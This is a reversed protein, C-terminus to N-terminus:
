GARRGDVIVVKSSNAPDANALAVFVSFEQTTNSMGISVFGITGKDSRKGEADLPQIMKAQRLAAQLHKEPPENGGGGYLGGDQDKYRDDATMDSLPKLGVPPQSPQFPPRKAGAKSGLAQAARDHYAQEEETLREGRLSKQHLQKAKNWDIEQAAALLTTLGLIGLFLFAATRIILQAM